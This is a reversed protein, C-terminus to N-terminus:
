IKTILIACNWTLFERIFPLKLIFSFEPYYRPSVAVTRISKNQALVQLTRGIYTPFLNQFPTHIRPKKILKDYLSVGLKPGLFHFPSFEHGGWPSLWNTWSLFFHGAPSLLEQIQSLFKEPKSLHELVNSCIVLDYRGLVKLNDSDINIQRFDPNDLSKMLYNTEDAYTVKCGRQALAAGFIGHGAGLDLIRSEPSIKVGQAELWSIADEAQLLYFGEDDRHRLHQAILKHIIM